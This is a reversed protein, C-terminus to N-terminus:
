LSFVFFREVFKKLSHLNREAWFSKSLRKHNKSSLYLFSRTSLMSFTEVVSIRPPVSFVQCLSSTLISLKVASPDRGSWINEFGPLCVKWFISVYHCLSQCLIICHIDVVHVIEQLYCITIGEYMGFLDSLLIIVPSSTAWATNFEFSHFAGPNSLM